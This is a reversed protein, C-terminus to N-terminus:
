RTSVQRKLALGSWKQIQQMIVYGAAGNLSVIVGAGELVTATVLCSPPVFLTDTYVTNDLPPGPLVSAAFQIMCGTPSYFAAVKWGVPIAIATQGAGVFSKKILALPRIIDLPIAKADETTFPYLEKEIGTTAM